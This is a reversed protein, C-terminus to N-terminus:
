WTPISNNSIIFFAASKQFWVGAKSSSKLSLTRYLDDTKFWISGSGQPHRFVACPLLTEGAGAKARVVTCDCLEHYKILDTHQGIIVSDDRELFDVGNSNVMIRVTHLDSAWRDHQNDDDGKAALTAFGREPVELEWVKFM